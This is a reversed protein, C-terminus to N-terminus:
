RRLYDVLQTTVAVDLNIEDFVRTRAQDRYIANESLIMSERVVIGSEYAFHTTKLSQVSLAVNVILGKWETEEELEIEIKSEIVACNYGNVIKFGALRHRGVVMQSGVLSIPILVSDEWTTGVTISDPPLFGSLVQAGYSSEALFGSVQEVSGDALMQMTGRSQPPLPVSVEPAAKSRVINFLGIEYTIEMDFRDM